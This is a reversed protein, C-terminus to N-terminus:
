AMLGAINPGALLGGDLTLAQGTVYSAAPSCLYVASNGVEDVEAIRGLSVLKRLLDGVPPFKAKEGEHMPTAVWTPCLANVRIGEPALDLALTRTIGLAAHKSACYQVKGPIGAFSAASTVNVIVGKGLDRQTGSSTTFSRREQTIMISAVARDIILTDKANVDMVTDYDEMSNQPIPLYSQQDIGASHVLYDISGFEKVVDEIMQKVAETDTINVAYAKSRYNPDIAYKKSEEAAAQLRAPDIDVFAIATAGAAALANAAGQGIGGASGTVIAVGKTQFYAMATFFKIQQCKDSVHFRRLLHYATFRRPTEM